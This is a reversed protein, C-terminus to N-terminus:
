PQVYFHECDFGQWVLGTTSVAATLPVMSSQMHILASIVFFLTHWANMFDTVIYLSKPILFM